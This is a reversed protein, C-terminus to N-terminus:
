RAHESQDAIMDSGYLRLLAKPASRTARVVRADPLARAAAERMTLTEAGGLEWVGRVEAERADATIIAAVVDALAVPNVRQSGDGPVGAGRGRGLRLLTGGLGEAIPACRLIAHELSSSTIHGEARGKAALFENTSAPDAGVFSLFIFRKV